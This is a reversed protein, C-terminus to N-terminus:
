DSSGRTKGCNLLNLTTKHSKRPLWMRTQEVLVINLLSKWFNDSIIAALVVPVVFGTLARAPETLKKIDDKFSTESTKM